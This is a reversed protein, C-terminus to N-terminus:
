AAHYYAEISWRVVDEMLARADYPDLEPPTAERMASKVLVLMRQPPEGDARLHRAYATVSARLQARLALSQQLMQESAGVLADSHALAARSSTTRDRASHIAARAREITARIHARSGLGDERAPRQDATPSAAAGDTVSRGRLADM